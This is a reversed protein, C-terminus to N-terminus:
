KLANLWAPVAGLRRKLQAEYLSQPEVPTGNSEDLKVQDQVFKAQAGHFGVIIPPLIKWYQWGTRWWDFEGISPLTGSGNVKTNTSYM